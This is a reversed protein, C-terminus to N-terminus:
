APRPHVPDHTSRRRLAWIGLGLLAAEGGLTGIAAGMMGFPAILTLKLAVYVVTSVAVVRLDLHQRGMAFLANRYHGNLLAIVVSALLVRLSPAAMEFRPSGGVLRLLPAALVGVVLAGICSLPLMVRMSRRLEGRMAEESIAFRQSLRPLLIMFYVATTGACLFYLKLAASFWGIQEVPVLFAGLLVLDIGLALGRLLQSGAFPLSQELLAPWERVPLPRQLPAIRRHFWLLLWGATVVEAVVQALPVARLERGASAVFVIFVFYVLPTSIMGAALVRTKQLAQAAWDLFLARSFLSLGFVAVLSILSGLQPMAAAAALLLVYASLGLVLRLAIVTAALRGVAEPTRATTRVSYVDLGSTGLLLAFAMMQGAVGIEGFARDGFHRVIIPTTTFTLAKSCFDAIALAGFRAFTGRFRALVGAQGEDPVLTPVTM